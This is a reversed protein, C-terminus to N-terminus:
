AELEGGDGSNGGLNLSGDVKGLDEEAMPQVPRGVEMRVISCHM